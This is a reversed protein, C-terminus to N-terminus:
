RKRNWSSRAYVDRELGRASEIESASLEHSEFDFGLAPQIKLLLANVLLRADLSKSIEKTGPLESAYDSRGLLISGHQLLSKKIRRQASGVIKFGNLVIDGATRRQFCLFADSSVFPSEPREIISGVDDSSGNKAADRYLKAELGTEVLLNVIAKHVVDYLEGNKASWRNTSPLVLSYTLEKDHVIAGGGSRRRVLPCTLSEAHQNRSEYKQFYGLSLTPESWRYFRLTVRNENEASMLLAQDVAMNWSGSAPGDFIVRCRKSM